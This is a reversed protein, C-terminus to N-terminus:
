KALQGLRVRGVFEESSGLFTMTAASGRPSNSRSAPNSMSQSSGSLPTKRRRIGSLISRFSRWGQRILFAPDHLSQDRESGTFRRFERRSWLGAIIRDCSQAHEVINAILRGLGLLPIPSM